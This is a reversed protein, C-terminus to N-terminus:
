RIKMKEVTVKGTGGITVKGIITTLGPNRSYDSAYGGSLVVSTNKTLLLDGTFAQAQIQVTENDLAADYGDYISSYYFTTGLITVPPHSGNRVKIVGSNVGGSGDTVVYVFYDTKSAAGAPPTYTAISGSLSVSGGLVTTSTTNLLAHSLAIKKDTATLTSLDITAPGGSAGITWFMAKPRINGALALVQSDLWATIYSVATPEIGFYGHYDLAGCIDPMGTIGNGDKTVTTGGSAVAYSTAPNVALLHNYLIQSNAPTTEYCGDSDHWLVHVPRQVFAVQLNSVGPKEIYVRAAHSDYTLSSSLSIGAAILNLAVASITGRSTGAIFVDLNETNIHKLITLIDVAHKVSIRYQDTDADTDSSGAIYVDSPRNVAITIYGADAFLQATRVLFNNGGTSAAVGTTIDGTIGINLDGGGILVVVAKPVTGSSPWNIFYDM